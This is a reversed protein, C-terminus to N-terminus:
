RRTAAAATAQWQTRLVGLGAVGGREVGKSEGEGEGEVRV